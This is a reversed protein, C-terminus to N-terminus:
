CGTLASVSPILSEQFYAHRFAWDDESRPDPQGHISVFHWPRTAVYAYGKFSLGLDFM